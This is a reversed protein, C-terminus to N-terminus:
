GHIYANYKSSFASGGNTIGEEMEKEEQHKNENGGAQKGDANPTNYYTTNKNSTTTNNIYKNKMDRRHVAARLPQNLRQGVTVVATSSSTLNKKHLLSPDDHHHNTESSTNNNSNLLDEITLPEPLARVIDSLYLRMRSALVFVLRCLLRADGTSLDTPIADLNGNTTGRALVTREANHLANMITNRNNDNVTGTKSLNNSHNHTFSSSSSSSSSSVGALDLHHMSALINDTLLEQILSYFLKRTPAEVSQMSINARATISQAEQQIQEYTGAHFLPRLETGVRLLAATVDDALSLMELRQSDLVVLADLAIDLDTKATSLETKTIMLESQLNNITEVLGHSDPYDMLLLSSNTHNDNSPPPPIFYDFTEVTGGHSNRDNYSTNDIDSNHQHDNNTVPITSPLYRQQSHSIIKGPTTPVTTPRNNSYSGGMASISPLPPITVTVTSVPAIKISTPLRVKELLPATSNRSRTATQLNITKTISSNSNSYNGTTTGPSAPVTSPRYTNVSSRSGSPSSPNSLPKTSNVTTSTSTEAITQLASELTAKTDSLEKKTTRLASTLTHTRRFLERIEDASIHVERKLHMNEEQLRENLKTVREAEASQFALEGVIAENEALIRKTTGDLANAAQSLLKAKADRMTEFMEHRVQDRDRINRRELAAIDAQHLAQEKELDDRTNRLETILDDREKRFDALRELASERDRLKRNLEDIETQMLHKTADVAAKIELPVRTLRNTLETIKLEAAATAKIQQELRSSTHAYTSASKAESAALQKKLLINEETLKRITDNTENWATGYTAATLSWASTSQKLLVAPDPEDIPGSAAPKAAKKSM